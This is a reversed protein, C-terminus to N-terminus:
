GSVEKNFEVFLYMETAYCYIGTTKLKKYDIFYIKNRDIDNNFRGNEATDFLERIIFTWKGPIVEFEFIGNSSDKEILDVGNTLMAKINKQIYKYEDLVTIKILERAELADTIQKIQNDNIGNKGIQFIADINQALSRLYARQKSTIM